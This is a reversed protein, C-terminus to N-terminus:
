SGSGGAPAPYREALLAHVLRAAQAEGGKPCGPKANPVWGYIDFHLYSGAKEVFRRLFLGAIIAGAFSNGSIHNLDAVSSRLLDDYPQWLPLRWVPDAEAIGIRALDAALAEDDTMFPPLDPGLAVRASGTLTAFDILLEPEEEDALALADALILRGEADTNGIEVSLGKRSPLVDGPRFANGSIANEVAPVLLRLRLDLGSAMVMAAAAIAAAAGGMDKKMLSMANDPKINLGGTDFAVGKGVLTVRPADARGWRLDILRPARPSARGVAHIMPLNEAILADGEIVNCSAGHRQALREVAQAIEAPGCDNAPTNILDRGLALAQAIQAVGAVDVGEPAVLRARPGDDAGNETGDNGSRGGRYRTFRYAGMLWALVDLRGAGNLRYLGEPLRGPLLGALLPDRKRAGGLGFLVQALDGQTDPLLIIEGKKAKFGQAKAFHAAPGPLEALLDDLGEPGIAHVPVAQLSTDTEIFPHTM